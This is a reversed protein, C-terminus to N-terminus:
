ARRYALAFAEAFEEISTPTTNAANRGELSRMRGENLAHALEVYLSAMTPSIGSGVLGTVFDEDPFQVYALDPKGIKAGLVATIERMTLDRPGLLERVGVGRFDRTRLASAAAAGIDRTAVVPFRIDPAIAGGNVGMNKILGISGMLNEMFYTPRLILLDIGPIKKLREEERHLAVVPGTGSPLEGGMSSLFVVKRVGSGTVAQAIAAGIRDSRGFYDNERMDPPLMVYVADAGRFARTLCATDMVDGVATEAGRSALAGLRGADRGIARVKEGAALLHEAASRGTNGGAGMVVVMTIEKL